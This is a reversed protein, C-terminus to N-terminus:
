KKVKKIGERYPKGSLYLKLRSEYETRSKPSENEPLLDITKQQWKLAAAFDGTEAYAAALTGLMQPRQHRTLECAQLALRLAQPGDRLQANPSTALIWSLNNLADANQPGELRLTEQFHKAASAFDKKSLYVQALNHHTNPNKPNLQLAKKLHVLAQDMRGQQALITGLNNHMKAARPTLTLHYQYLGVSDRWHTLYRRTLTIQAAAILLVATLVPIFRRTFFPASAPCFRGLFWTLIMLLGLSPFYVFRNAAIADTVGIIGLTPFIAVLFILMGTPLAQWRRASLLLAAILVTTGIVGALVMPNTLSFNEPFQYYWSLNLPWVIKYLYFIINHCVILPIRLPGSEGMTVFPTTEEFSLYAIIFSLAGIAFFPLKEMVARRSFRRLPWYDMLLMIAPLPLTTPKALLSLLYMLLCISYVKWNPRRCYRVFLTLCVLAFFATLVTKRDSLWAIQGITLPHVGFLLGALAAPIPQGFLQYLLVILLATNLVHLLLSTRHFPRLNEIRGGLTYDLMQSIMTLPM